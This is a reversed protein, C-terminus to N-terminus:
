FKQCRERAHALAVECDNPINIPGFRIKGPALSLVLDLDLPM